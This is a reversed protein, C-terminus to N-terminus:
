LRELWRLLNINYPKANTNDKFTLPLSKKNRVREIIESMIKLKENNKQENFLFPAMNGVKDTRNFIMEPLYDKIAMRYVYRNMNGSCKIRDPLSLYYQLLRIDAMPFRPEVKYYIGQRTESEMRLQVFPKLTRAKQYYKLSRYSEKFIKSEWVTDKRNLLHKIPIHFMDTALKAGRDKVLLNRLKHLRFALSYPMFPMLRQYLDSNSKITNFYAKYNGQKLYYLHNQKGKDTVMQDGPFGSLMTRVGGEQAAKKMGLQWTPSWMELGDNVKLLFDTEQLPSDWIDDTIFIYNQIDHHRIVAEIYKRESMKLQREDTVDDSLTNSYTVLRDKITNHAVGVIGSSDMGGSLEAGISYASRLRCNVATEFHHKLGEFYAEDNTHPLEKEADLEWYCETKISGTTAAYTLIHAAPLRQINKYLTTNAPQNFSGLTYRYLYDEDIVDGVSPICLLGKKETAFAFFGPMATYFFPKVGMHDRACFLEQESANWIAVTFDGIMHRVCSKNYKKYLQLILYSDAYISEDDKLGLLACIEGRNDLRADCTILLDGEKYPLKEHLSAPTNFLMLHGMSVGAIHIMAKEDPQWHGLAAEMDKIANQDVSQQRINVRGYIASM